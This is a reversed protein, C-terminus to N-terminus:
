RRVVEQDYVTRVSAILDGPRWPRALFDRAGAQMARRLMAVDNQDSVLVVAATPVDQAMLESSRLGDTGPLNIDMIVVDPQLERSMSLATDGDAANGVVEVDAESALQRITTERSEPARDVVLVRIRASPLDAGERSAAM